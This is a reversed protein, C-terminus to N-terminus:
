LANLAYYVPIVANGCHTKIQFLLFEIMDNLKGHLAISSLAASGFAGTCHEPLAFSALM